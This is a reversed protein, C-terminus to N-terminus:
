DKYNRPPEEWWEGYSLDLFVWKDFKIEIMAKSWHRRCKQQVVKMTWDNNEVDRWVQLIISADNVFQSAGRLDDVPRIHSQDKRNSKRFHHLLIIPVWNDKSYNTFKQSTNVEDKYDWNTKLMWINDLFVMDPEEREIVKLIYWVETNELWVTCLWDIDTLEKQRRIYANKKHSDINCLDDWRMNWEEKSIGAYKRAVSKIMDETSMELSLYLVKFWREANKIAVDFTWTSKGIWSEWALIVMDTNELKTIKRDTQATGWTFQKYKDVVKRKLWKYTPMAELKDAFKKAQKIDNNAFCKSQEELILKKTRERWNQFISREASKIMWEIPNDCRQSITALLTLEIWCDENLWFYDFQHLKKMSTFLKQYLPNWFMYPELHTINEMYNLLAWMIWDEANDFKDLTFDLETEKYDTFSWVDICDQLQEQQKPNM